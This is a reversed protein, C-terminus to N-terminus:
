RCIRAMLNESGSRWEVAVSAGVQYVSLYQNQDSIEFGDFKGHLTSIQRPTGFERMSKNMRIIYSERRAVGEPDPYRIVGASLRYFTGQADYKEELSLLFTQGASVQHLSMPQFRPPPMRELPFAAVVAHFDIPRDLASCMWQNLPETISAHAAVPAFLASAAMISFLKLPIASKRVSKKSAKPM